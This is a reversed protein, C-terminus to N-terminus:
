EEALNEIFQAEATSGCVRSSDRCEPAAGALASGGVVEDAGLGTATTSTTAWSSCRAAALGCFSLQRVDM